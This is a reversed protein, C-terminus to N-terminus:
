SQLHAGVWAYEHAIMDELGFEPKWGLSKQARSSDAVLAAPDGERRPGFSYAIKEGTVKEVAQVVELNSFGHGDGCNFTASEGGARLYGLAQVHALALDSVHIYDRVCTGDLTPFDKGNIVFPKKELIARICSRIMHTPHPEIRYGVRGSPDTGAVNFYRFIVSSFAGRESMPRLVKEARLKSEGYPNIPATPADELIPVTVPNGYVAASSSFIFNKIGNQTAVEALIQTNETNNKFYKDPERVSEDVRIFGAFHIVADIRHDRIIQEVLHADGVSGQVFLAGQPVRSADSESLDDLVVVGEGREMLALTTHSGIYGAGGTVLVSNNM